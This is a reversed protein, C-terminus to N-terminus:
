KKRKYLSKDSYVKNQLNALETNGNLDLFLRTLFIFNRFDGNQGGIFANTTYSSFYQDSIVIISANTCVNDTYFGSIKGHLSSALVFQQYNESLINQNKVLFPNTECLKESFNFDFKSEWSNGSSVLVPKVEEDLELPVSWFMNLGSNAYTQPLVSIWLPYNLIQADKENEDSVLTIRSSSIDNVFSTKFHIGWTELLECLHNNKNQNVSWDGDIDVTYPNVAFVVGGKESLIYDEILSTDYETLDSEGVVYLPGETELLMNPNVERYHIGQNSLWQCLLLQDNELARGNGMLINVTPNFDYVLSLLKMDLSYELSDATLVFPLYEVAGASELIICSYVDIFEVSNSNETRIRQPYIGYSKLMNSVTSNRDCNVTLLEVNSSCSSYLELFDNVSRLAPYLNLLSNSKYYTIKISQDSEQLLKKTYKSITYSKNKSFDFNIKVRFSLLISMIGILLIYLIRRKYNKKYVKGLRREYLFYSIFIFFVSAAIFFLLDSFSFIGLSALYFHWSFSFIRCFTSLLSVSSFYESFLHLSNILVLFLFSFIFIVIDNEFIESIFFCFSIALLGYLILFFLSVVVSNFDVDGFFNVFIPLLLLPILMVCYSLCLSFYKIIIKEYNKLPVNKEYYDKNKRFCLVPILLSSIFPISLFFVTLSSTGAETFFKTKVFYYFVSSVFLFVTEFIFLPSRIIKLFTKLFFRSQIKM